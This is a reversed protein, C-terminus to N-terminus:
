LSMHNNATFTQYNNWLRSKSSTYIIADLSSSSWISTDLARCAASYWTMTYFRSHLHTPHTIWTSLTWFSGKPGDTRRRVVSASRAIWVPELLGVFPRPTTTSSIRVVYVQQKKIPPRWRAICSVGRLTHDWESSSILTVLFAWWVSVTRLAYVRHRMVMVSTATCSLGRKWGLCWHKQFVLMWSVKTWVM